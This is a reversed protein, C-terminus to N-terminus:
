LRASLIYMACCAFRLTAFMHQMPQRHMGESNPGAQNFAVFSSFTNLYQPAILGGSLGGPEAVLYYSQKTVATILALVSDIIAGDAERCTCHSNGVTLTCRMGLDLM